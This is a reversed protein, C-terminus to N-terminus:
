INNLLETVFDTLKVKSAIRVPGGVSLAVTAIWAVGKKDTSLMFAIEDEGPLLETEKQKALVWADANQLHGKVVPLFGKLMQKIMINSM